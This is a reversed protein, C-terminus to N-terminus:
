TLPPSLMEHTQLIEELLELGVQSSPYDGIESHNGDKIHIIPFGEFTDFGFLKRTHNYPEFIGRLAALQTLTEGYRTGFECIVGPVELIEQYLKAWYIIRSIKLRGLTLMTFSDWNNDHDKLM